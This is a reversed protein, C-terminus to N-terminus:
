RSKGNGDPEADEGPEMSALRAEIRLGHHAMAQWAPVM